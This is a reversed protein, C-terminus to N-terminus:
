AGARKAPTWYMDLVQLRTAQLREAVVAVLRRMIAYGLAPDAESMRRLEAADFALAQVPELARAQFYRHSGMLMSSWGLEDGPGLTEVRLLQREGALDLAVHGSVVLFLEACDDGERFIVQGAAYEVPRAVKALHDVQAATFDEVFHQQALLARVDSMAVSMVNEEENHPGAYDAGGHEDV